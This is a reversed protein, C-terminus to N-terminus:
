FSLNVGFTFTRPQPVNLNDTWTYRPDMNNSVEPDWGPYPALTERVTGVRQDDALAALLGGDAPGVLLRKSEQFNLLGCCDAATKRKVISRIRRVSRM